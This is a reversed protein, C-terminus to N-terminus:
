TLYVSDIVILYGSTSQTKKERRCLLAPHRHAHPATRVDGVLVDQAHGRVQLPVGGAEFAGVTVLVQILRAGAEHAVALRVAFAVVDPSHRIVGSTKTRTHIYPYKHTNQHKQIPDFM